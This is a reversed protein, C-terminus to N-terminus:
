SGMLNIKGEAKYIVKANIINPEFPSGKVLSGFYEGCSYKRRMM